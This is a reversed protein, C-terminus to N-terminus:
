YYFRIWYMINMFVNERHSRRWVCESIYSDFLEDSTGRMNRFKHKALSWLGEITQTYVNNDNSNVFEVSHNVTKHEYFKNPINPIGRYAAWM